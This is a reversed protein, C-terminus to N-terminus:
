AGENQYQLINLKGLELFGFPKLLTLEAEDGYGVIDTAPFTLQITKILRQQEEVSGFLNTIGIVEHSHHLAAGCSISEGEQFFVLQVDPDQLLQQNFIEVDNPLCDCACIWQELLEADSVTSLELYDYNVEPEKPASYGYWHASFLLQYNSQRGDYENFSDKIAWNFPASAMVDDIFRSNLSQPAATIVNPYLPPMPEKSCWLGGLLESKRRHASAVSNCWAINNQAAKRLLTSTTM